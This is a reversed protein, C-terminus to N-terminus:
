TMLTGGRSAHPVAITADEGHLSSFLSDEPICLLKKILTKNAPTEDNHKLSQMFIWRSSKM